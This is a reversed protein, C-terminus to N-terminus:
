HPPEADEVAVMVEAVQERTTAAREALLEAIGGEVAM